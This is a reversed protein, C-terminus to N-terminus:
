HKLKKLVKKSLANFDHEPKQAIAQLIEIGDDQDDKQALMCGALIWEAYDVWNNAGDEIVTELESAAASYREANFLSFGM